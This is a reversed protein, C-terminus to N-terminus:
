RNNNSNSTSALERFISSVSPLSTTSSASGDSDNGDRNSNSSANENPFLSQYSPPLEEPHDDINEFLERVGDAIAQRRSAISEITPLLRSELEQRLRQNNKKVRRAVRINEREKFKLAMQRRLKTKQEDLEDMRERIDDIEQDLRREEDSSDSHIIITELYDPSSDTRRLLPNGIRRYRNIFYRSRTPAM